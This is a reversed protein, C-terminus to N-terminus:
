PQSQKRRIDNPLFKDIEEDSFRMEENSKLAQSAKDYAKSNTRPANQYVSALQNQLEDRKAQIQNLTLNNLKIDTLLSLYSERISWMQVATDPHSKAIKGLDYDKAYLTVGLLVTSLLTGITIGWRQAVFISTLLSTTTM